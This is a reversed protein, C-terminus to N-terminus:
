VPPTAVLTLMVRLVIIAGSDRSEQVVMQFLQPTIICRPNRQGGEHKQEEVEIEDEPIYEEDRDAMTTVPSKVSLPTPYERIM